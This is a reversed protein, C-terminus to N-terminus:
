VRGADQLLAERVADGRLPGGRRAATLCHLLGHFFVQINIRSKHFLLQSFLRDLRSDIM